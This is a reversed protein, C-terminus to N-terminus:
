ELTTVRAVGATIVASLLEVVRERTLQKNSQWSEVAGFLLGFVADTLLRLEAADIGSTMSGLLLAAREHLSEVLPNDLFGRNTGRISRALFAYLEPEAEILGAVADVMATVAGAIDLRGRGVLDDIVQKELRSALEVAIADAVGQKDDFERYLIPKSMGAAEAMDALSADPGHRRIAEMAADLLRARHRAREQASRPPRGRARRTDDSSSSASPM